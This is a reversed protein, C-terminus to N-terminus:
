KSESSLKPSQSPTEVVQTPAGSYLYAVCVTTNDARGNRMRHRQYKERAKQLLDQACKASSSRSSAVLAVEDNSVVDWLGDSAVVIRDGARMECIEFEPEPLVGYRSLVPHGLARTMALALAQRKIEERPFGGGLSFSILVNM